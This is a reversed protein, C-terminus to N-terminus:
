NGTTLVCRFRAKGNMMHDYAEAARELPFVENMSRVGSLVSFSLTDQSDISTGAPWGILSRRGLIMLATPVQIPEDSAGIVVLKGNAALGELIESMAKGSPVTALIVKAGGLKNLEEVANQSRNDIYQRAGLKKVLEEEDKGRAIAITSFGMKDAFQVGLHGLGGIGLIAVLDGARAGSNRLANYTTIGACMLPAAEVASLQEPILALAQTPAIVYDAYGGDYSIGPVQLYTCTVFDGRRCSECHGCHGGHWGVAVRQRPEWQTVDKGVKDIVGAIEHGVVRPYQIGPFLGEKTFSDSHCVGCAQVKIRVQMPGPEPIDREVIEFPGKPKSVQVSRM